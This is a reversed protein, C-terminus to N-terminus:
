EISEHFPYHWSKWSHWLSVGAPVWRILSGTHFAATCVPQTMPQNPFDYEVKM